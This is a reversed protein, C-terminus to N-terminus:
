SLKLSNTRNTLFVKNRHSQKNSTNLDPQATRGAASGRPEAGAVKM